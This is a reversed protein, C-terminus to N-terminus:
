TLTKLDSANLNKFSTKIKNMGSLMEEVPIGTKASLQFATSSLKGVDEVSLGLKKLSGELKSSEIRADYLEKSIKLISVGLDVLSFADKMKLFASDLEVVSNKFENAYKKNEGILAKMTDWQKNIRSIKDSALDNITFILNLKNTDTEAM